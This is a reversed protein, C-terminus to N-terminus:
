GTSIGPAPFNKAADDLVLVWDQGPGCTPPTFTQEPQLAFQGLLHTDGSRPDFWHAATLGAPAENWRVVFPAGTPAYVFAYANDAASRTAVVYDMDAGPDAVFYQDPVRPLFPRSEILARLHRMQNAGPAALAQKWPTQAHPAAGKDGVEYFRWVSNHGYTFGCAGAFVSWYARQRLHWDTFRPRSPDQMEPHEEYCPEGDLTPKVPRRAYDERIREYNKNGLRHGSQILNFALWPEDHFFEGSSTAPPRFTGGPPHYTMPALPLAYNERGTAGLAIGRAMARWVAKDADDAPRGDGGLIWFVNTRQGYRKGLFAGYAEGSAPTTFVRGDIRKEPAIETKPARKNVYKGWCAVLGVYLGCVSAQDVVHDVHQFYAENPRAPDNNAFPANGDANLGGQESLVVAQIVSFNKAARDRLYLAADSATLKRFLEWGTDALYFFPKNDGTVLFRGNDSVKLRPLDSM